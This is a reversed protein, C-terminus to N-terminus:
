ATGKAELAAVREKLAALQDAISGNPASVDHTLATWAGADNMAAALAVQENSDDPLKGPNQGTWVVFAAFAVAEFLDGIREGNPGFASVLAKIVEPDMTAGAPAASTGSPQETTTEQWPGPTDIVVGRNLSAAAYAPFVNAGFILGGLPNMIRGPSPTDAVVHAAIGFAALADVLAQETTGASGAGDADHEITVMEPAIGRARLVSEVCAEGCDNHPYAGGATLQNIPIVNPDDTRLVWHRESCTACPQGYGNSAIMMLQDPQVNV